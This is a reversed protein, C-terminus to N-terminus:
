YKLTYNILVLFNTRIMHLMSYIHRLDGGSPTLVTQRNYTLHYHMGYEQAMHPSLCITGQSTKFIKTQYVNSTSSKLQKNQNGKHCWTLLTNLHQEETASSCSAPLKYDIREQIHLWYLNYMPRTIHDFKRLNCVIRCSMKQICPLKTLHM